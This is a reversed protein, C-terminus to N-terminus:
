LKLPYGSGIFEKFPTEGLLATQLRFTNAHAAHAVWSQVSQRAAKREEMSHQYAKKLYRLKRQFRYGNKQRLLRYTPFIRYGLFDVGLDVPFVNCKQPHLSLRLQDLYRSIQKKIEWLWAKHNGFIVFDDVYRLYYLCRLVEKVFHDLGNLYINAFFQSTLNGLPLGRRRDYPTFLDDGPFYEYIPLQRNSHDIILYILWLTRADRIKTALMAKLIEHDISPFYKRIDCKLVYRNKRAYETFRNAARHAGKELRCAYSDHIFTRDFLPEIINCLAHHVVRDRYPAASIKREKYDYITFEYYAGPQYTQNKLEEHLQWLNKELDMEFRHVIHKKAKGLRAKEAALLLNQFSIISEFLNKFTKV